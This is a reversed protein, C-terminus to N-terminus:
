RSTHYDDWTAFYHVKGRIKKARKGSAHAYLPDDLHPKRPKDPVIKLPLNSRKIEVLYRSLAGYADAWRGYYHLNGNLKRAWQGNAHAFLPYDPTPKTPKM